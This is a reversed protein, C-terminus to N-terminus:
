KTEKDGEEKTELLLSTRLPSAPDSSRAPSPPPSAGAGPSKSPSPPTDSTDMPTQKPHTASGPRSGLDADIISLRTKSKTVFLEPSDPIKVGTTDELDQSVVRGDHRHVQNVQLPPLLDTISDQSGDLRSGAQRNPSRQAVRWGKDKTLSGMPGQASLRKLKPGQPGAGTRRSRARSPEKSIATFYRGIEDLLEEEPYSPVQTSLSTSWNHLVLDQESFDVDRHELDGHGLGAQPGLRPM